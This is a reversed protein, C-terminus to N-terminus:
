RDKWLKRFHEVAEAQWAKREQKNMYRFRGSAHHFQQHCSRCLPIAERDSARLALGFGTKHHLEVPLGSCMHCRFARLWDAYPKDDNAM